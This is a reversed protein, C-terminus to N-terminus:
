SSLMRYRNICIRIILGLLTCYNANSCAEEHSLGETRHLVYLLSWYVCLWDRSKGYGLIKDSEPRRQIKYIKDTSIVEWGPFLQMLFTKVIRDTRIILPDYHYIIQTSKDFWLATLHGSSERDISIWGYKILGKRAKQM